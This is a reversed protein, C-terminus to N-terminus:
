HGNKNMQAILESFRKVDYEAVKLKQSVSILQHRRHFSESGNYWVVLAELESLMGCVTSNPFTEIIRGLWDIKVGGPEKPKGHKLYVIEGVCMVPMSSLALIAPRGKSASM